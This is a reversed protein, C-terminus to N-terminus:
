SKALLLIKCRKKKKKNIMSKYKKIEARPIACPKLGIASNTIAITIGFASISICGTITFALILFHEIYNITMCARKHKNSMLENQDTEEVFYNRIENINRM